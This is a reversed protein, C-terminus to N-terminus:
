FGLFIQDLGGTKFADIRASLASIVAFLYPEAASEYFPPKYFLSLFADAL